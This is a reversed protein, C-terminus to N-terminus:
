QQDRPLVVAGMQLIVKPEVCSKYGPRSSFAKIQAKKLRREIEPPLGRQREERWRAAEALRDLFYFNERDIDLQEPPQAQLWDLELHHLKFLEGKIRFESYYDHLRKEIAAGAGSLNVYWV